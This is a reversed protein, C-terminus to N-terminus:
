NALTCYEKLIQECIKNENRRSFEIETVRESIGMRELSFYEYLSASGFRFFNEIPYLVYNKCNCDYLLDTLGSRLQIITGATEVFKKLKNYPLFVPITGPIKAEAPYNCNTCVTYGKKKLEDALYSWFQESLPDITNAYPVLVITNGPFLGKEKFVAAIEEDSSQEAVPMMDDLTLGPFTINLYMDMFNSGNVGLLAEIIKQHFAFPTFHLVEINPETEGITQLYHLLDETERKTLIEVNDIPFMKAVKYGSKGIVTAVYQTIGNKEAWTPLLSTTIYIDGTGPYHNVYIRADCGYKELLRLYIKRGHLIHSFYHQLLKLSRSKKLMRKIDKSLRLESLVKQM